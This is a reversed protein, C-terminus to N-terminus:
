QDLLGNHSVGERYLTMVYGLRSCFPFRVMTRKLLRRAIERIEPMARPSGAAVMAWDLVSIVASCIVSFSCFCFVRPRTMTGVPWCAVLVSLM